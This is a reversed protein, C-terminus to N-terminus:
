YSKISQVLGFLAEEDIRERIQPPCVISDVALQEITQQPM